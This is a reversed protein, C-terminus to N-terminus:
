NTFLALLGETDWKYGTSHDGISSYFVGDRQQPGEKSGGSSSYPRKLAAREPQAM